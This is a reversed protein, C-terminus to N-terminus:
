HHHRFAYLFYELCKTALHAKGPIKGGNRQAFARLGKKITTLDFSFGGVPYHASPNRQYLRM